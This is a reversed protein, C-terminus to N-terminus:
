SDPDAPSPHHAKSCHPCLTRLDFDYMPDPAYSWGDDIARQGVAAYEGDSVQYDAYEGCHECEITLYRTETMYNVLEAGTAPERMAWRSTENNM